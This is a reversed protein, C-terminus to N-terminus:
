NITAIIGGSILIAAPTAERFIGGCSRSCKVSAMRVHKNLLNYMSQSRCRFLEIGIPNLPSTRAVSKEAAM